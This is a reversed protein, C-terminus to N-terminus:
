GMFRSFVQWFSMTHPLLSSEPQEMVLRGSKEQIKGRFIFVSGKKLTSRLFPMNFWTLQLRVPEEYLELVVVSKRQNGKVSPSHVIRGYVANKEEQRCERLPVPEAYCDYDRPYYHLLQQM